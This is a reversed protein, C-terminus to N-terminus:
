QDLNKTEFMPSLIGKQHFNKLQICFIFYIESLWKISCLFIFLVIIVDIKFEACLELLAFEEQYYQSTNYQILSFM